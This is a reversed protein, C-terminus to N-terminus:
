VCTRTSRCGSATACPHSHALTRCCRTSPRPPATSLRWNACTRRFRSAECREPAHHSLTRTAVRPQRGRGFVAFTPYILDLHFREILACEIEWPVIAHPSAIAYFWRMPHHSPTSGRSGWCRRLWAGGTADTLKSTPRSITRQASGPVLRRRIQAALKLAGLHLRSGAFGVQRKDACRHGARVGRSRVVRSGAFRAPWPCGLLRVSLADACRDGAVV